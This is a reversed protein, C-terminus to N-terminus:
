RELVLTVPGDNVLDVEMSAGFRGTEVRGPLAARFADVFRDYLAEAVDPAAAHVFSPRRGKSTDGYLTFQSVLLVSGSVQELDLNMRGADDSFVRLRSIKDVMWAIAEDSDGEAFGVLVVHGTDIAGVTAGDIRVEAKSVRQLVVRM